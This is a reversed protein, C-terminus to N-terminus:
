SGVKVTLTVTSSLNETTSIASTGTSFKLEVREDVVADESPTFTYITNNRSSISNGNKDFVYLTKSTTGTTKLDTWSLSFSLKQSSAIRFFAYATGTAIFSTDNSYTKTLVLDTALPTIEGGVVNDTTFGFYIRPNNSLITSSNLEIKMSASGGTISGSYVPSAFLTFVTCLTTVITIIRKM